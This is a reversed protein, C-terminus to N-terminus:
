LESTMWRRIGKESGDSYKWGNLIKELDTVVRLSLSTILAETGSQYTSTNICQDELQQFPNWNPITGSSCSMKNEMAVMIRM